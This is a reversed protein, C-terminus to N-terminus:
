LSVSVCLCLSVSVCLCMRVVCVCVCIWIGLLLVAHAKLQRVDDLLRMISGLPGGEIAVRYVWVCMRVGVGVYVCGM